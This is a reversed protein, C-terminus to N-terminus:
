IVGDGYIVIAYIEPKDIKKPGAPLFLIDIKDLFMLFNNYFASDRCVIAYNQYLVYHRDHINLIAPLFIGNM